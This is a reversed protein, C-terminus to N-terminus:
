CVDPDPDLDFDDLDLLITEALHTMVVRCVVWFKIYEDNGDHQNSAEQVNSSAKKLRQV